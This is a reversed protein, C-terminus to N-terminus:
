GFPTMTFIQKFDLRKKTLSLTLYVMIKLYLFRITAGPAQARQLDVSIM